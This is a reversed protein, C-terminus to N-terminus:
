YMFYTQFLISPRVPDVISAPVTILIFGSISGAPIPFFGFTYLLANNTSLKKFVNFIHGRTLVTPTIKRVIYHM